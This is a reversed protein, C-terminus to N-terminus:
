NLDFYHVIVRGRNALTTSDYSVNDFEGNLSRTLTINTSSILLSGGDDLNNLFTMNDNLILAQVQIINAWDAGLGHAISVSLTDDMNWVGIDYTQMRVINGTENIVGLTSARFRAPVVFKINSTGANLEAITAVQNRLTGPTVARSFDSGTEVESTQAIEILGRRESSAILTALGAPTVARSTDTGAQTETNNALEVLGALADTALRQALGGVTVARGSPTGNNVETNTALEVTGNQTTSATTERIKAVLGQLYQSVSDTDANGNPTISADRLLKLFFQQLDGYVEEVVATGNRAAPPSSNRLRGDPFDVLNSSDIDARASFDRAM